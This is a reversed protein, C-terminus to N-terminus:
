SHFEHESVKLWGCEQAKHTPKCKPRSGAPKALKDRNRLMWQMWCCTHSYFLTISQETDECCILFASIIFEATCHEGIPQAAEKCQVSWLLALLEIQVTFSQRHFVTKLLEASFPQARHWRIFCSFFKTCETYIISIRANLNRNGFGGVFEQVNNLWKEQIQDM